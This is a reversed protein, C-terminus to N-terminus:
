TNKKIKHLPKIGMNMGKFDSEFTAIKLKSSAQSRM